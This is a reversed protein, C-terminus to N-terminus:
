GRLAAIEKTIDIGAPCWTICRGCGVCGFTGFQDVWAAFKHTLWQRYRSKPSLRVSGGHIYSFNQTFCSDWRRWREALHQTVDSTDETTTCFCTPCSMTCNGCALCRGAVEEWHPHEYNEYLTERLGETEVQRAQRPAAGAERRTGHAECGIAELVEKGAETGAAAEFHPDPEGPHETLLIDYGGAPEPGTGMSACFCTDACETCAVAVFFSNRRRERYGTDPYRDGDLVRDLRALAALDCARVGLFAYRPPATREELIHFTGNDREAAVLRVDPPHLFRKLGQAANGYGFYANDQRRHLRFRGPAQESGWGVPLDGAEEVSDLQIGGDRVRPGIVCYGRRQLEPILEQFQSITLVAPKAALAANKAM